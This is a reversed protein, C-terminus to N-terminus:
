NQERNIYIYINKTGLNQEGLLQGEGERGGGIIYIFIYFDMSTTTSSKHDSKRHMQSSTLVLLQKWRIQCNEATVGSKSFSETSVTATLLCDQRGGKLSLSFLM